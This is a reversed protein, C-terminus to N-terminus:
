QVPELRRRREPGPAEEGLSAALEALMGDEDGRSAAGAAASWRAPDRLAALALWETAEGVRGARWARAARRALDDADREEPPLARARELVRRLDDDMAAGHELRAAAASWRGLRLEAWAHQDPAERVLRAAHLAGGLITSLLAGAAVLRLTRDLGRRLGPDGGARELFRVREAVSFHRWGAVDRLRGGVKELARVLAARDGVMSIAALDAQLEARRSLWTFGAFWAAFGTGMWAMALWPDDAAWHRALLDILLIWGASALLFLPVHRLRMHAVEHALVAELEADDMQALLSDSLYVARSGRSLGVVAANATQYGTRWEALRTGGVGHRELFRELRERREGRPLERTDWAWAVVRPMWAVTAALLALVFAAEYLGIEEVRVRLAESLGVAGALAGYLAVPALSAALSRWQHKRWAAGDRTAVFLRARADIALLEACLWPALLAVHWPTPWDFLSLPHGAAREVLGAWGACVLALAHAGPGSWRLLGHLWAGLVFRGSGYAARCARAVGEPLALCALVVWWRPELTAQMAECSGHVLVVLLLHPLHVM